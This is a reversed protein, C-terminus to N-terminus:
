RREELLAFLVSLGTDRSNPGVFTPVGVVEGVAPLEEPRDDVLVAPAHEPALEPLLWRGNADRADKAHVATILGDINAGRARRRAYEAGGASWLLVPVDAKQLAMLLDHALPRLCTGTVSDLLTGDLDFLWARAIM